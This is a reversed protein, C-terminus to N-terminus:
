GIPIGVGLILRYLAIFLIVSLILGPKLKIKIEGEEFYMSPYLRYGFVIPIITIALSLSIILDYLLFNPFMIAGILANGILFPIIVQAWIFYRQKRKELEPFYSNSSLLFAKTTLVGILIMATLSVISYIVKETDSIYSWLIAYGFGRGFVSGILISGFFHNFGHLFSWLIFLKGLGRDTRLYSFIIALFVALIGTVIAPSAYVMKVSDGFWQSPKVLWLVEYHYIISKYDFFLGSISSVLLGILFILFYAAVFLLSSHLSIIFFGWTKRRNDRIHRLLAPFRKPNLQKFSHISSKGCTKLYFRLLKRRRRRHYYRERKKLAIKEETEKIFEDSNQEYEQRLDNRRKRDEVQEQKRKKRDSIKDTKLQDQIIKQREKELDKDRSLLLKKEQKKLKKIYRLYRMRRYIRYLMSYKKKASMFPLCSLLM